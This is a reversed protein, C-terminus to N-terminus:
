GTPNPLFVQPNIIPMVANSIISDKVNMVFMGRSTSIAINAAVLILQDPIFILNGEKKFVEDFNLVRFISLTKINALEIKTISGQKEFLTISFLVNFTNEDENISTQMEFQFEFAEEPLPTKLEQVRTTTEFHLFKIDKIGITIGGSVQAQNAM